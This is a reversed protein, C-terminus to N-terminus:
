TRADAQGSPVSPRQSVDEFGLQESLFQVVIDSSKEAELLTELARPRLRDAATAVVIRGVAVGHVELSQLIEWLEEITGLIPKKYIVRGRLTPDDALLGAVRIKSAFEQVSRVFLESVTNVGAVLITEHPHGAIVNNTIENTGSQRAFWFRAIGRASVLFVVIFGGQLAPLTRAVGELRNAAFTLVLALLIALVTLVIIQLHDAVSSYRWPTRDLGCVLFVISTSGLFFCIYPISAILAEQVTDFNGRLMVALLTAVAVLLLDASILIGRRLAKGGPNEM